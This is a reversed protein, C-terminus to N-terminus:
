LKLWVAVLALLGFSSVMVALLTALSTPGKGYRTDLRRIEIREQITAIVLMGVGVVIMIMGVRRPNLVTEEHTMSEFFKYISFGFSILSTATRVWAMLTREHAMRTREVALATADSLPPVPASDSNSAM